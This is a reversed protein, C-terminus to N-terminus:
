EHDADRLVSIALGSDLFVEPDGEIGAMSLFVRARDQRAVSAHPFVERAIGCESPDLTDAGVRRKRSQAPRVRSRSLPYPAKKGRSSM